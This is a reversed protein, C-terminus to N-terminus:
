KVPKNPPPMTFLQFWGRSYTQSLPSINESLGLADLSSEPFSIACSINGRIRDGSVISVKISSSHLDKVVSAVGASASNREVTARQLTPDM